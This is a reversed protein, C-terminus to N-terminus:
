VMRRLYVLEDDSVEPNQLIKKAVVIFYGFEMSDQYMNQSTIWVHGAKAADIWAIFGVKGAVFCLASRDKM